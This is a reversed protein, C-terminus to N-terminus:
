AASTTAKLKHITIMGSHSAAYTADGAFAVRYQGKTDSQVFGFTAAGASDTTTGVGTDAWKTAGKARKFLELPESSLGTNKARLRVVVTAKFSDNQSAKEKTAKSTLHTHVLKPAKDKALAPSAAAALSLAAVGVILTSKSLQIV